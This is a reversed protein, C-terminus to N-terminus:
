RPTRRARWSLRDLEERAAPLDDRHGVVLDGGILPAVASTGKDSRAHLMAAQYGANASIAQLQSNRLIWEREGAEGARIVTGGPSADVLGGGAFTPVGVLLSRLAAAIEPNQTAAYGEVEARVFRAWDVSGRDLGNATARAQAGAFAAEAVRENAKALEDQAEAREEASRKTDVAFLYAKLGAENAEDIAEALDREADALDKAAGARDFSLRVADTSAQEEERQLDQLQRWVAMWEASYQQFSGLRRLLYTEYADASIAGTQLMAAQIADEEAIRDRASQAGQEDVARIRRWVDMWEDSYRELGGLQESLYSRYDEASLDGVEFRAAMLKGMDAKSSGSSGSIVKGVIGGNAYMPVGLAALVRPGVRPDALLDRMRGPRTLPLVVEEGAEGAGFLTPRSVIAGDAGWTVTPLQGGTATSVPIRAGTGALAILTQLRREAEDFQGTDILAQVEAEVSEPIEGLQELLAEVRGRAEEDRALDVATRISDPTLGLTTLYADAEERTLGMQDLQGILSERLMEGGAAAEEASAGSRVMAVMYDGLNDVQDKIADRNARGKETSIDLTAGNAKFAATLDDVGAEWQQAAEEIGRPAGFVADLADGFGSAASEAVDFVSTQRRLADSLGSTAVMAESSASAHDETAATHQDTATSGIGLADANEVLLQTYQEYLPLLGTGTRQIGTMAEAEALLGQRAESRAADSALWERTMADLDVLEAQDQLEELAQGTAKLDDTLWTNAESVGWFPDESAAVKQALKEAEDATVGAQMAIAKLADVPADTIGLLVDLTDETTLGLTGLAATLRAGDDGTGALVQSLALHAVRAGDTATANAIAAETAEGLGAAVERSREAVARQSSTLHQYAVFAVGAAVAVGTLVGLMGSAAGASLGLRQLGLRALEAGGKISEFNRVLSGSIMLMPGAAAAAGAFGLVVNRLPAPLDVVAEVLESIGSALPGIVDAALPLLVSGVEIMSAQIDTTAQKLKFADTDAVASYAGGLAGTSDAVAAMTTGLRANSDNLLALAGQYGEIDDFLARLAQQNGAFGKSRLLELAAVLGNDRLVAQLEEASTGMQALAERGQQTPAVMKALFGSMATVTRGTDGFVNSLYATAGGVEEFEVGLQAAIPLIRGLSGALEQPDARGQQVTRTLIDTAKAADLADAGYSAMASAVLGVVDTTTGMGAASAKAAVTVADMAQASDLGASAAFYLADALEQPATATDRALGLVSAKLGDIESAPVNALGQMRAFATEFDYALKGAAGGVAVMPLTLRMTAASGVNQMQQGVKAMNRSTEASFGTTAKKAREMAAVYADVRASLVVSFSREPM